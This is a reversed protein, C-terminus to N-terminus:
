LLQILIQSIVMSTAGSGILKGITLNFAAISNGLFKNCEIFHLYVINIRGLINM